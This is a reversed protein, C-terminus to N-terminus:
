AGTCAAAMTMIALSILWQLMEFNASSARAVRFRTASTKVRRGAVVQIKDWGGVAKYPGPQTVEEHWPELPRLWVGDKDQRVTSASGDEGGQSCPMTARANAAPGCWIGELCDKFPDTFPGNDGGHRIDELCDEFVDSCNDTSKVRWQAIRKLQGTLTRVINSTTAVADLATTDSHDFVIQEM